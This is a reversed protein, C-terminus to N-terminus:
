IERQMARGALTLFVGGAAFLMGCCVLSVRLPNAFGLAAAGDSLLGALQPAGGYGVLNTALLL